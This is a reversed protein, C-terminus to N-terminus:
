ADNPPKKYLAETVKTKEQPRPIQWGLLGALGIVGGWILNSATNGVSEMFALEGKAVVQLGKLEAERLPVLMKKYKTDSLSHYMRNVNNTPYLHGLYEETADTPERTPILFDIPSAGVCGVIFLFPILLIYKM